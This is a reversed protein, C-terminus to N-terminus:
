RTAKRKAGWPSRTKGQERKAFARQRKELWAIHSVLKKRMARQAAIELDIEAIRGRLIEFMDDFTLTGARYRPLAEGIGKLSFGLERSMAIFVVERVAGPGFMRYGSATREAQLLGLEEYHRLRYVSVGTQLALESIKM